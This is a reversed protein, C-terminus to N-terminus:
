YASKLKHIAWNTAYFREIQQNNGLSDFTELQLIQFDSPFVDLDYMWINLEM